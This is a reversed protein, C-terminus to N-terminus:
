AIPINKAFYINKLYIHKWCLNSVYWRCNRFEFTRPCHTGFSRERFVSAEPGLAVLGLELCLWTAEFLLDRTLGAKRRGGPCSQLHPQPIDFKSWPPCQLRLSRNQLRYASSHSALPASGEACSHYSWNGKNSILRAAANPDSQVNTVSRIHAHDHVHIHVRKHIHNQVSHAFNEWLVDRRCIDDFPLANVYCWSFQITEFM